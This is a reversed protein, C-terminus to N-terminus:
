RAFAMEGEFRFDREVGRVVMTGEVVYPVRAQRLLARLEPGYSEVTLNVTDEFSAVSSAPVQEWEGEELDRLQKGGVTVGWTFTDVKVDFVNPNDIGVRFFVAGKDGADISAVQAEQLVPRPLVPTAVERTGGFSLRADRYQLEGDIEVEARQWSLFTELALPDGPLSMTVRIPVEVTTGPPIEARPVRGVLAEGTVIGPYADEEEEEDNENENEEDDNGDLGTESEAPGLLTLRAQGGDITLASRTRNEVAVVVILDISEFSARAFDTDVRRMKAQLDTSSSPVVQASRCALLPLMAILTIVLTSCVRLTRPM